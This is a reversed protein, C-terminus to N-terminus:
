SNEEFCEGRGENHAPPFRVTIAIDATVSLGQYENGATAPMWVSIQLTASEGQPIARKGYVEIGEALGSLTGNYLLNPKEGMGKGLELIEIQLGTALYADGSFSANLMCIRFPLDGVNVVKLYKIVKPSGPYFYGDKDPYFLPVSPSLEMDFKVKRGLFVMYASASPQGAMFVLLFLILVITLVSTFIQRYKL